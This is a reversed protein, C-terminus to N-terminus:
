RKKDSRTCRNGAQIRMVVRVLIKVSNQNGELLGEKDRNLLGM